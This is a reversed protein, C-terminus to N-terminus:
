AKASMPMAMPSGMMMPLGGCMMMMPMGVAMMRNMLDCRQQMAEYAGAESSPSLKCVMGDKTMECTMRAIM